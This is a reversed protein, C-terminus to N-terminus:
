KDEGEGEEADEEDLEKMSEDKEFVEEKFSEDDSTNIDEQSNRSGFKNTEPTFILILPTSILIVISFFWFILYLEFTFIMPLFSFNVFIQSIHLFTFMFASAINRIDVDFIENFIYYILTNSGLVNGFIIFCLLPISIYGQLPKSLFYTVFGASLNGILSIFTGIFLFKKRGIKDIVLSFFIICILNWFSLGISSMARPYFSVLGMKEIIQPMFNIGCLVGSFQYSLIFLFCVFIKKLNKFTAFLLKWKAFFSLSNLEASSRWEPSEPALFLSFIFFYTLFLIGVSLMFNWSYFTLSFFVTLHATLIGVGFGIFYGSNVFSKHKQQVLISTSYNPGIFSLIGTSIGVILRTILLMAYFISFVSILQGIFCTMLCILITLKFGILYVLLIGVLPGFSFGFYYFTLFLGKYFERGTEDYLALEEFASSLPFLIPGSIGIHFGYLFGCFFNVNLIIFTLLKQNKLIKEEMQLYNNKLSCKLNEKLSNRETKPSQLISIEVDQVSVNEEELEKM